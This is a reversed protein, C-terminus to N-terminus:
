LFLLLLLIFCNDTVVLMRGFIRHSSQRSNPIPVSSEVRLHLSYSPPCALRPITVEPIPGLPGIFDSDSAKIDKIWKTLFEQFNHTGLELGINHQNCHELVMHGRLSQFGRYVETPADWSFAESERNAVHCFFNVWKYINKEWQFRWKSPM